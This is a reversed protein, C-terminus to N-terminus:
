VLSGKPAQKQIECGSRLDVNHLRQNIEHIRYPGNSNQRPHNFQEMEPPIMNIAMPDLLLHSGNTNQYHPHDGENSEPRSGSLSPSPGASFGLRTSYGSDNHSDHSGGGDSTMPINLLQRHFDEKEGVIENHGVYDDEDLPSMPRISRSPYNSNFSVVQPAVPRNFTSNNTFSPAQQPPFLQRQVNNLERRYQRVEEPGNNPPQSNHNFHTPIPLYSSHNKFSENSPNMPIGRGTPIPRIIEKPNGGGMLTNEYVNKDDEYSSIRKKDLRQSSTDSRHDSQENCSESNTSHLDVQNKSYYNSLTKKTMNESDDVEQNELEGLFRRPGFIDEELLSSEDGESNRRTRRSKEGDGGGGQVPRDSVKLGKYFDNKKSILCEYDDDEEVCVESLLEESHARRLNSGLINDSHLLKRQSRGYKSFRKMAMARLLAANKADLGHKKEIETLKSELWAALDRKLSLDRLVQQREIAIRERLARRDMRDMCDGRENAFSEKMAQNLSFLHDKTKRELHAIRSDLKSTTGNIKRVIEKKDRDLRREMKKILPSCVCDRGMALPGKRINGALDLFYQEGTKLHDKPLGKPNSFSFEELNPEFHRYSSWDVGDVDESGGSHRRRRSSFKKQKEGRSSRRTKNNALPHSYAAPKIADVDSSMEELAARLAANLTAPSSADRKISVNPEVSQLIQIIDILNKRSAIDMATENQKNKTEKSCGSEILVKTLKRRGMAAAIHLATDGNKNQESPNCKGSVLIRVVGAHGYRASTHLPTDGYQNKIDPKCGSLLLIRCTENHGNQCCLHLPAFGGRNKMYCNAKGVRTLFQVSQSFGKWAAEHLSTNGHVEDQHDINAGNKILLKLIDIHGEAAARQLPTHGTFDQISVDCGSQILADVVSEHGAASALHLATQGDNDITVPAGIKLLSLVLNTQGSEVAKKLKDALSEVRNEESLDSASNLVNM